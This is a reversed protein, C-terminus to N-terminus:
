KDHCTLCVKSGKNSAEGVTGANRRLFTDSEGLHPDHCSVCEVKGNRLLDAITSAGSWGTVATTTPKLSAAGEVYTISVPHDNTLDTGIQTVGAPMTKATGAATAGFAVLQGSANYGGSGPANVISNIASVGDHCSLCALSPANPQQDTSTGAITQGATNAATAGYMTFSGSSPTAKNWLPAGAFDTNAAHPTHCYVCIEDNNQGADAKITGGGTASLDHKSGTITAMASTVGLALIAAAAIKAIETRRM